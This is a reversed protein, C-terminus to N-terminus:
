RKYSDRRKSPVVTQNTRLRPSLVVLGLAREEVLSRENRARLLKLTEQIVDDSPAFLKGKETHACHPPPTM